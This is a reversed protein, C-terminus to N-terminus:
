FGKSMFLATMTNAVQRDFPWSGEKASMESQFDQIVSLLLVLFVLPSMCLDLLSGRGTFRSSIQNSFVAWLGTKFLCFIPVIKPVTKNVIGHAPGDLQILTLKIYLPWFTTVNLSKAM